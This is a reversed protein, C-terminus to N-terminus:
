RPNSDRRSRWDLVSNRVSGTDSKLGSIAALTRGVDHILFPRDNMRGQYRGSQHAAVM